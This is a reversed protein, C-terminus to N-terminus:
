INWYKGIFNGKSIKDLIFINEESSLLKLKIDKKTFKNVIYCEYIREAENEEFALKLGLHRSELALSENKPVYGLCEIDAYKEIAQKLSLYHRQSSVNNLIVGCINIRPDLMKFGLAIAACSTSIAKASIVLIVPIDLIRAVHATSFNDFENSLGDFLGM